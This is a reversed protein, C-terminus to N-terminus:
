SLHLHPEREHTRRTRIDPQTPTGYSVEIDHAKGREMYRYIWSKGGTVMVRLMLGGGDNLM